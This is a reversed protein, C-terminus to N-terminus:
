PRSWFGPGPPSTFDGTAYLNGNADAAIPLGPLPRPAPGSVPRAGERLNFASQHCPCLLLGPSHEYLAVICGAHTCLLSYAVVGDVHGVPMAVQQPDLRVLFAPTDAADPHGEPQVVVIAFPPVEAATVFSGDRRVLRLGAQWSTHRLAHVPQPVRPAILSRLPVILAIGLASVALGVLSLLSRRSAGPPVEHVSGALLLRQEEPSALPPHPQVFGGHPLLYRAWVSLGYAVGGCGIALGAGQLVLRDVVYGAVFVASGLVSLGFALAARRAARRQRLRRLEDSM